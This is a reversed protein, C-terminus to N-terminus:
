KEGYVSIKVVAGYIGDFYPKEILKADVFRGEDLKEWIEKNFTSPFYGLTLGDFRVIRIAYDDFENDEEPILMLHTGYPTNEIILQRDTGSDENEFTVGRVKINFEKEVVPYKELDFCEMYNKKNEESVKDTKNFWGM